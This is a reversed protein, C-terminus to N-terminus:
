DERNGNEDFTYENSLISEDVAEDSMLYDYERELSMYVWDAFDRMLEKITYHADDNAGGRSAKSNVVQVAMSGSHHHRGFHKVEAYLAYFNRSQIKQLEDAIRHLEKDMPAYDRIAKAAGKAYIYEGTFCAGDGQSSFGSFYINDIDIGIIKACAKADDYVFDWWEYDLTGARYWQRANDKASEDLEDFNYVTYTKTQM